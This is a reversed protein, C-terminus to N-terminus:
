ARPAGVLARRDAREGMPQRDDVDEGLGVIRVREAEQGVVLAAGHEGDLM